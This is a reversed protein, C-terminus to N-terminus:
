SVFYKFSFFRTLGKFFMILYTINIYSRYMVLLFLCLNKIAHLDFHITFSNKLYIQRNVDMCGKHADKLKQMDENIAKHCRLTKTSTRLRVGLLM